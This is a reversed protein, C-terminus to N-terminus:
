PQAVEFPQGIGSLEEKEYREALGSAINAARAYDSYIIPLVRM